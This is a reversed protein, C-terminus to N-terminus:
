YVLPASEYWDLQISQINANAGINQLFAVHIADQLLVFEETGRSIGGVAFPGGGGALITHDLETGGAFTATAMQAETFTSVANALNPAEINKCEATNASNRERNLVALSTGATLDAAGPNELLFFEAPQSASITVVLHMRKATNPARFAIGTRHDDTAATITSYHAKFAKGQHLQHHPVTIMVGAGSLHDLPIQSPM